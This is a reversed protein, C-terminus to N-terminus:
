VAGTASLPPPLEVVVQPAAVEQSAVVPKPEETSLRMVVMSRGQLPYTGAASYAQPEGEPDATDLLRQWVAGQKAAPLTFQLLEHHANLLLLVTDGVIAEGRDNVNGILDGALRVGLSKVFGANWAPETMEEGNMEFWCIDKIDSGRIARGQFFRKRHFVPQEHWVQTVRKVFDLFQQQPKTLSWNLWTLESDQCYGNNNGNQTHSLEDGSSLMPVGTSLLLTTIFNRKQRERLALIAPDDTPGEAGGNWSNNDNTGDRNHEGNAENHKDNYSVLDQLTFGDHCTIFNISANPLRGGWAYLDSSGTLRTAFEGATGGDGKWFRRVNDRYKGNWETWLV